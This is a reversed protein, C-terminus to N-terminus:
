SHKGKCLHKAGIQLSNQTTDCSVRIPYYCAIDRERGTKTELVPAYIECLAKFLLKNTNTNEKVCTNPPLNDYIQSSNKAFRPRSLLPVIAMFLLKGISTNVRVYTYLVSKCVIKRQIARFAPPAIAPSHATRAGNQDGFRPSILPKLYNRAIRRFLPAFRHFSLTPAIGVCLDLMWM